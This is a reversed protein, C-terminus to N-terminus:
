EAPFCEVREEDQYPTVVLSRYDSGQEVEFATSRMFTLTLLPGGTVNGEFIIESLPVRDDQSFRVVEREFRDELDSPSMSIPGFQIRVEESPENPFHRIYRVPFNFRVKIVACEGAEEISADQIVGREALAWAPSLLFAAALSLMILKKYIRM